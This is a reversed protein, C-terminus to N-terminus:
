PVRRLPGPDFPSPVRLRDCQRRARILEMQFRVHGLIPYVRLITHRSQLLDWTGLAALAVLALAPLAWWWFVLSTAVTSLAALIWVGAVIVPRM